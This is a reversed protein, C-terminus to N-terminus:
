EQEAVLDSRAVLLEVDWYVRWAQLEKPKVHFAPLGRVSVKEVEVAVGQPQGEVQEHLAVPSPQNGRVPEGVDGLVMEPLGHAPNHMILM